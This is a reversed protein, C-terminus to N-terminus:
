AAAEFAAAVARAAEGIGFGAVDEASLEPALARLVAAMDGACPARLREVLTAVGSCGLATEMRALAGLTLCLTVLRGGLEVEVEGRAGNM